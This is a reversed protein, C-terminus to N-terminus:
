RSLSFTKATAPEFLPGRAAFAADVMRRCADVTAAMPKEVLVHKGARVAAVALKEHFQPPTSIVVAEVEPDAILRAPDAHFRVGPAAAKARAEDLDAIAVLSTAKARSIADARLKGISGAGILGFKM